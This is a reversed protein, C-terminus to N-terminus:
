EPEIGGLGIDAELQGRASVSEDLRALEGARGVELLQRQGVLHAAEVAGAEGCDRGLHVACDVIDVDVLLPKAGGAGTGGRGPVQRM